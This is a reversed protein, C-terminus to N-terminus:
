YKTKESLQLFIITFYAFMGAFNVVEDGQGSIYGVPNFELCTLLRNALHFWECWCVDNLPARSVIFLFNCSLAYQKFSVYYEDM